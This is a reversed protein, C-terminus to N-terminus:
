AARGQQQAQMQAIRQQHLEEGQALRQAHQMQSQAMQQDAQAANMELRQGAQALDPAMQLAMEAREIDALRTRHAQVHAEFVMRVQPPLRLYRPQKQVAEHGDIHAEDDDWENIELPQGQSLVRNEARIQLEDVTSEDIFHEFGGVQMDRFWKALQRQSMPMGNQLMTTLMSEMLAQKAALTKPMTSGAQVRVNTHGRLMAGRFSMIQWGYNESALQITRTDDYFHATLRLIKSGLVGLQTEMDTIAPGLQTDDAEQLLNIASAATVGVPVQANSVDHQASITQFSENNRDLYRDVYQPLQPAELYKPYPDPSTPDVYIPAGITGMAAEFEGQDGVATRDVLPHPHALRNRNEAMQSITKNREMQPDRLQEVLCTPHFRGPLDIGRFMVYPMPDFPQDNTELLERETWTATFGDPYRACPRRWFEFLRVGKYGNSSRGQPNLQAQVLGPNAPTDAEVRKGYREFVHDESAISEEILWEAEELTEALPDPFIQFASRVVIRVDGQAVRKRRISDPPMGMQAALEDPNVEITLPRGDAGRLPEGDPGVLVETSDGLSPDWIAKLYGAGVSRSWLLARPFHTPLRLHEWHFELIQEALEAAEMDEDAATRPTCTFTPRHKTLKAVEKRVAPLIWNETLTVRDADLVPRNLKGGSYAVWQEGELFALNMAWAPEFFRRASRAQEYLRRLEDHNM